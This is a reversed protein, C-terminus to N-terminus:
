EWGDPLQVEVVVNTLGKSGLYAIFWQTIRDTTNEVLSFNRLSQDMATAMSLTFECRIKLNDAQAQDETNLAYFPPRKDNPLSQVETRYIDEGHHDCMPLWQWSGTRKTPVLRKAATPLVCDVCILRKGM